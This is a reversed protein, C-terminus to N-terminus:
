EDISLQQSPTYAKMANENMKEHVNELKYLKYASSTKDPVKSNDSWHFYRCIEEFRYGPMISPFWPVEPIGKSWYDREEALNVIGMAINIGLFAM